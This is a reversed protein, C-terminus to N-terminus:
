TQLYDALAQILVSCVLVSSNEKEWKRSTTSVNEFSNIFEEELDSNHENEHYIEDFSYDESGSGSESDM